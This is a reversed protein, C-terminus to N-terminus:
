SPEDEANLKEKDLNEKYLSNLMCEELPHQNMFYYSMGQSDPIVKDIRICQINELHPQKM